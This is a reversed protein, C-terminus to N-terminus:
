TRLNYFYDYNELDRIGYPGFRATIWRVRADRYAVMSVYDEFRIARFEEELKARMPVEELKARTPVEDLKVDSRQSTSTGSGSRQEIYKQQLQTSVDYQSM